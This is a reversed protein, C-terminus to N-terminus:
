STATPRDALLRLKARNVMLQLVVSIIFVVGIAAWRMVSPQAFFAMPVLPIQMVDIVLDMIRLKTLRRIFVLDNHLRAERNLKMLEVNWRSSMILPVCIGVAMVLIVFVLLLEEGM